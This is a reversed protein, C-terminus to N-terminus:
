KIFAENEFDFARQFGKINQKGNCCDDPNAWLYRFTEYAEDGDYCVSFDMGRKNAIDRIKEYYYRKEEIGFHLASNKQKIAPNFLYTLDKGTNEKIWKINWSSLRLFGAIVTDCGTDAILDILSWDFYRFNEQPEDFLNGLASKREGSFHGDPYMPFLPNIRAATYFGKQSIKKLAKLRVSTVDAGEEFVKSVDDFPTTISFQIYGLDKDLAKIYEDEAILTNKTLILYPYEYKKLLKLLELTVKHHKETECFCDTMGGLRIPIRNEFFKSYKTKRKQVFEHLFLNEIKRLDAISPNENDWLKRFHLVSKAYCYLCNHTCGCGYTDLKFPYFCRQVEGGGPLKLFSKFEKVDKNM